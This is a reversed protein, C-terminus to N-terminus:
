VVTPQTGDPQVPVLLVFEKIPRLFTTKRGERLLEVQAKRVEGDESKIAETIRGLPWDNRHAGDEKVLVVDGTNLNRRPSNWKSRKQLTQMYERRWRVWFQDALYQVRRWRRRSYLDAPVFEGPPPGLPRMKLTLLMAPSLPQPEDTDSPVTTILRANVIATVEAM